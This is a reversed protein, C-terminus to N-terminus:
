IHVGHALGFALLVGAGAVTVSAKIPSAGNTDPDYCGTGDSWSCSYRGDCLEKTSLCGCYAGLDDPNHCDCSLNQICEGSSLQCDHRNLCVGPDFIDECTKEQCLMAFCAGTQNQFDQRWACNANAECGSQSGHGECLSEIEYDGDYQCLGPETAECEEKTNFGCGCPQVRTDQDYFVLDTKCCRDSSASVSCTDGDALLGIGFLCIFGFYKKM